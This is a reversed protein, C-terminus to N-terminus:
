NRDYQLFSPQNSPRRPYPGASLTHPFAAADTGILQAPWQPVILTSAATRQPLSLPSWCVASDLSGNNDIGLGVDRASPHNDPFLGPDTPPQLFYPISSQHLSTVNSSALVAGTSYSAPENSPHYADLVATDAMMEASGAHAYNIPLYYHNSRDRSPLTATFSMRQAREYSPTRSENFSSIPKNIVNDPRQPDMRSPSANSPRCASAEFPYLLSNESAESELQAETNSAYPTSSFRDATADNDSNAQPSIQPKNGHAHRAESLNGDLDPYDVFSDEITGPRCDRDATSPNHSHLTLYHIVPETKRRGLSMFELLRTRVRSSFTM